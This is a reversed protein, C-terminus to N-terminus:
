SMTHHHKEGLLFNLTRKYSSKRFLQKKSCKLNPLKLVESLEHSLSAPSTFSLSYRLEKSSSGIKVNSDMQHYSGAVNNILGDINILFQDSLSKAKRTVTGGGRSNDVRKDFSLSHAAVNKNEGTRSIHSSTCGFKGHAMFTADSSLTLERKEEM